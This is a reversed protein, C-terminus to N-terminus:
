SVWHGIGRKMTLRSRDEKGPFLIHFITEKTPDLLTKNDMLEKADASSSVSRLLSEYEVISADMPWQRFDLQVVKSAREVPSSRALQKFQRQPACEDDGLFAMYAADLASPRFSHGADSPRDTCCERRHIAEWDMIQCKKSCYTAVRCSSCLKLKLKKENLRTPPGNRKPCTTNVCTNSASIDDFLYMPRKLAVAHDFFVRVSGEFESSVAKLKRFLGRQAQLKKGNRVVRNLVSRFILYPKIALLVETCSKKMSAFEERGIAKPLKSLFINIISTIIGGDLGECVWTFGDEFCRKLVNCCFGVCNVAVQTDERSISEAKSAVYELVDAIRKVIRKALFPHVIAYVDIEPDTTLKQILRTSILPINYVNQLDLSVATHFQMVSIRDSMLKTVQSWIIEFQPDLVEVLHFTLDVMVPLFRPTTKIPSVSSANFPLITTLIASSLCIVEGRFTSEDPTMPETKTVGSQIFFAMWDAMWRFSKLFLQHQGTKLIVSRVLFFILGFVDRHELASTSSDSSPAKSQLIKRMGAESPTLTILPGEAVRKLFGKISQPYVPM